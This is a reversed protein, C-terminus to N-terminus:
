LRFDDGRWPERNVPPDGLVSRVSDIWDLISDLTTPHAREWERVAEESRAFEGDVDPIIWDRRM